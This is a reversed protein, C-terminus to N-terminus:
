IKTAIFGIHGENHESYVDSPYDFLKIKNIKFGHNPLLKALQPIDFVHFYDQIYDAHEPAIEKQNTIVTGHLEEDLIENVNEVAKLVGKGLYRSDDGDRLEVAEHIGTSAGSPVAARGMSGDSTLVDVEITPNGRSDLIERAHVNVIYSM